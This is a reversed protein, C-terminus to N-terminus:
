AGDGCGITQNSGGGGSATPTISSPSPFAVDQPGSGRGASGGAERVAPATGLQPSSCGGTGGKDADVPVAAAQLVAAAMAMRPCLTWGTDDGEVGVVLAVVRQPGLVSSTDSVDAGVAAALHPGSQM